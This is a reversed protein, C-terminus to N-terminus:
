SRPSEEPCVNLELLETRRLVSVASPVSARESTLLRHLDDVSTVPNGAFRVILDGEAIGAREAPSTREVALVLVGTEQALGHHRAIARHIPAGQGGVGLRSRRIRGEKILQGAVRKVLDIEIAFCLGQAAAIIATNVGIVEGRSNVLPGGSNGPNLAADTQIVNDILRGSTSRMSRGCASVIGATVTSEFGFPSGVAIALQGPRVRGSDGLRAARLEPADIKLIALDTDSDDGVLSAERRAGDPASVEIRAAGHVVHSNTVLLGDPTLVFGSGGGRVPQGGPGARRGEVQVHVVSPRIAEVAGTVAHSYADLLGEDDDDPRPLAAEVEQEHAILRLAPM